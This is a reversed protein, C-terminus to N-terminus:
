IKRPEKLDGGVGGEREGRARTGYMNPVFHQRKM